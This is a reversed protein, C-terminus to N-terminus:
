RALVMRLVEAAAWFLLVFRMYFLFDYLWLRAARDGAWPTFVSGAWLWAVIAALLIWLRLPSPLRMRTNPRDRDPWCLACGDASRRMDRGTAAPPGSRHGGHRM